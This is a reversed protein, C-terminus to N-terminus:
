LSLFVGGGALVGGRSVASLRKRLTTVQVIFQRKGRNNMKELPNNWCVYFCANSDGLSSFFDEMAEHGGEAM